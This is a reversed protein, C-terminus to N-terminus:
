PQSERGRGADGVVDHRQRARLAGMHAKGWEGDGALAPAQAPIPLPVLAQGPAAHSPRSPLETRGLEELMRGKGSGPLLAM